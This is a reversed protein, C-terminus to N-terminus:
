GTLKAYIFQCTLADQVAVGTSIFVIKDNNGGPQSFFDKLETVMGVNITDRMKWRQMDGLCMSQISDTVVRHSKLLSSDLESLNDADAGVSSIFCVDACNVTSCVAKPSTTALFVADVERNPTFNEHIKLNLEPLYHRCLAIFRECNEAKPDYVHLKKVGLWVFLIYATYFGIRGAGILGVRKPHYETASLALCSVAATRFSSLACVDFLACIHNDYYDLLAAKGVCIKDYITRQEENTGIIKVMKLQRDDITCPMVRFDGLVAPHSFVQKVPLQVTDTDSWDSYFDTLQEMFECCHKMLLHHIQMEDIYICPEESLRLLEKISVSSM